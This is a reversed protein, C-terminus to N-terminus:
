GALVADCAEESLEVLVSSCLRYSLVRVLRMPRNAFLPAILDAYHDYFLRLSLELVENHTRSSLCHAYALQEHEPLAHLACEMTSLCASVFYEESDQNELFCVVLEHAGNPMLARPILQEYFIREGLDLLPLAMKINRAM